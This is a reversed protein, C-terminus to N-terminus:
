FEIPLGLGRLLEILSEEHNMLELGEGAYLLEDRLYPGFRRYVQADLTTDQIQTEFFNSYHWHIMKM